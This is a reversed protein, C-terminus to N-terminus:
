TLSKVRQLALINENSSLSLKDLRATDEGDPEEEDLLSEDLDSDRSRSISSISSNLRHLGRAGGLGLSSTGGSSNSNSNSHMSLPRGGGSNDNVSIIRDGGTSGSGTSNTAPPSPLGSGSSSAGPSPPEPLDPIDETPGNPFNLSSLFPQSPNSGIYVASNRNTANKSRMLRPSMPYASRRGKTTTFRHNLNSISSLILLCADTDQAYPFFFLFFEDLAGAVVLFSVFRHNYVEM